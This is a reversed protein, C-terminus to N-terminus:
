STIGYKFSDAFLMVINDCESRDPFEDYSEQLWAVNAWSAQMM